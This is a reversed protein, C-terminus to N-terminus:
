YCVNLRNFNQILSFFIFVLLHYVMIFSLSSWGRHDGCRGRRHHRQYNRISKFFIYMCKSSSIFYLIREKYTMKRIKNKEKEKKENSADAIMDYDRAGYILSAPHCSLQCNATTQLVINQPFFYINLIDLM